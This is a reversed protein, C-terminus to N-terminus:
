GASAISFPPRGHPSVSEFGCRSPAVTTARGAAFLDCAAVGPQCYFPWSVSLNRADIAQSQPPRGVTPGDPDLPMLARAELSKRRDQRYESNRSLRNPGGTGRRRGGHHHSALLESLSVSTVSGPLMNGGVHVTAPWAVSTMEERPREREVSGLAVLSLILLQWATWFLLAFAFAPARDPSSGNIITLHGRHRM